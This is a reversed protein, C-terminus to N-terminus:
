KVLPRRVKIESGVKMVETALQSLYYSVTLAAAVPGSTGSEQVVSSIRFAEYTALVAKRRREADDTTSM